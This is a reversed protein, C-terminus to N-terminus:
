TAFNNPEAFISPELNFKFNFAPQTYPHGPTKIKNQSSTRFFPITFTIVTTTFHCNTSSPFDADASQGCGPKTSGNIIFIKNAQETTTAITQALSLETTTKSQTSYAAEPHTGRIACWGGVPSPINAPCDLPVSRIFSLSTLYPHRLVHCTMKKGVSVM